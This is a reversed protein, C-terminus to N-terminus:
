AAPQLLLRRLVFHRVARYPNRLVHYHLTLLWGRRKAAALEAATFDQKRARRWNKRLHYRDTRQLKRVLWGSWRGVLPWQGPCSAIQFDIIWGRGAADILYNEPKSLDNHCVGRAHLAALTAELRRFYDSDPTGGAARFEHLDSGDVYERALGAAGVEALQQPVGAIGATLRGFKRERAALARGLWGLPLPGWRDTHYTKHLLRPPGAGAARAYVGTAAYFDNKFTTELRYEGFPLALAGPLEAGRMRRYKKWDADAM